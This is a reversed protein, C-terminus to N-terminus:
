TEGDNINNLETCDPAADLVQTANVNDIYFRFNDTNKEIMWRMKFDSGTPLDAASITFEPAAACADSVSHNSDDITGFTTWTAGNDSSYQVEATGWGDPFASEDAADIVKYDFNLTFDTGNSEGTINQSVLQASTIFFGNLTVRASNGECSAVDDVMFNGPGANAQWGSPLGQNFNEFVGIQSFGLYPM